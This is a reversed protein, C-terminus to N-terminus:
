SVADRFTDALTRRGFSPAQAGRVMIRAFAKVEVYTNYSFLRMFPLFIRLAALPVRAVSVPRGLATFAMAAIENFSYSEPGGVELLANRDDVHLYYYEALDTLHIPNLRGTGPGLLYVRGQRAMDFIMMMDSFFGSPRVIVYPLGSAILATEFDKKARYMPNDLNEEVGFGSTFVFKGVGARKAEELLNVNAQYDVDRFSTRGRQRTVGLATMVIEAGDCIGKLSAPETVEAEVLEFREHARFRELPERRRAVARIRHGRALGVEVLAQGLHGTSGAVLITRAAVNWGRAAMIGSAPSIRLVGHRRRRCHM